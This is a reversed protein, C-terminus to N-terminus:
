YNIDFDLFLFFCFVVSAFALCVIIFLLIRSLMFLVSFRGLVTLLTYVSLPMSSEFGVCMELREPNDALNQLSVAATM